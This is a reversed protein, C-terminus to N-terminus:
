YKNNKLDDTMSKLYNSYSKINNTNSKTKNNLEKLFEIYNNISESIETKVNNKDEINMFSFQTEQEKILTVLTKLNELGLLYYTHKINKLFGLIYNKNDITSYKEILSIDERIVTYDNDLTDLFCKKCYNDVYKKSSIKSAKYLLQYFAFLIYQGLIPIPSFLPAFFYITLYDEESMSNFDVDARKYLDNIINSPLYSEYINNTVNKKINLRVLIILIHALICLTISVIVYIIFYNM